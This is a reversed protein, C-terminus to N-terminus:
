LQEGGGTTERYHAIIGAQYKALRALVEPELGIRIYPDQERLDLWIIYGDFSAYVGDGLYEDEIEPKSESM